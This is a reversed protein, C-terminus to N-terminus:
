AAPEATANAMTVCQTHLKAMPCSNRGATALKPTEVTYRPKAETHTSADTKTCTLFKVKGVGGMATCSM